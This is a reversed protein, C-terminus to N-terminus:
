AVCDASLKTSVANVRTLLDWSRCIFCLYFELTPYIDQNIWMQTLIYIHPCVDGVQTALLIGSYLTLYPVLLDSLYWWIINFLIKSWAPWHQIMPEIRINLYMCVSLWNYYISKTTNGFNTPESLHPTPFLNQTQSSRKTTMSSKVAFVNNQHRLLLTFFFDIYSPVYLQRYLLPIHSSLKIGFFITDWIFMNEVFIHENDM